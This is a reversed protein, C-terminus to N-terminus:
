RRYRHLITTKVRICASDITTRHMQVSHMENM